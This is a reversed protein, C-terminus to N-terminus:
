SGASTSFKNKSWAQLGRWGIPFDEFQATIVLEHFKQWGFNNNKERLYCEILELFLKQDKKNRELWLDVASKNRMTSASVKRQAAALIAKADKAVPM